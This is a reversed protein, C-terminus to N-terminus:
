IIKIQKKFVGYIPLIYYTIYINCLVHLRTVFDNIIMANTTKFLFYIILTELVNTKM